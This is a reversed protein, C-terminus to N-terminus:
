WRLLLQKYFSIHFPSLKLDTVKTNLFYAHCKLFGWWHEPKNTENLENQKHKCFKSETALCQQFVESFQCFSAIAPRVLWVHKLITCYINFNQLYIFAFICCVCVQLSLSLCCQLKCVNRIQM